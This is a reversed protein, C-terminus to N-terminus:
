TPVMLWILSYCLVTVIIVAAVTAAAVEVVVQAVVNIGDKSM